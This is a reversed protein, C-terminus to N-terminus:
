IDAFFKGVFKRNQMVQGEFSMRKVHVQTFLLTGESPTLSLM